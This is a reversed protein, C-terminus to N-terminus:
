FKTKFTNCLKWIDTIFYEIIELHDITDLKHRKLLKTAGGFSM